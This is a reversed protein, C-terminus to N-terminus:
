DESGRDRRESDRLVEAIHDGTEKHWHIVTGLDLELKQNGVWLIMPAGPVSRTLFVFPKGNM